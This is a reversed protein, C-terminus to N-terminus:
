WGGPANLRLEHHADAQHARLYIDMAGAQGTAPILKAGSTGASFGDGSQAQKPWEADRGHGRLGLRLGLRRASWRTGSCSLLVIRPRLSFLSVVINHVHPVHGHCLDFLSGAARSQYRRYVFSLLM